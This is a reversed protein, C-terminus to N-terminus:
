KSNTSLLFFNQTFSFNTRVLDPKKTDISGNIYLHLASRFFKVFKCLCVMNQSILLISASLKLKRAKMSQLLGIRNCSNM